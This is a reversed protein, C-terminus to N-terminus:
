DTETENLVLLQKEIKEMINYINSYTRRRDFKEEACRRARKGLRECLVKDKTLMIIKEALDKSDNNICNFGMDYKEILKRYERSEQTNLVPCGCAAYDAHKNIISAASRGEIPNVVMDCKDLMACMQPYPLRGTFLCKVNKTKVYDEFEKKRPGDGMVIFKPPETGKNRVIDLADIVSILDYSSGLTGCYGLWMESKQKTWEVSSEKNQDFVELDTGLFVSYGSKCKKSVCLARNVYTQSVACIDDARRYINDAIHKFPAFVLSSIVPVHFVMEFAEPWLDQIDIIFRIGNQNCFKAANGAATLSPVACYVVDPKKRQKLYSLVNRGWISHSYFRKLCVNKRYGPEKLFTIKFPWKKVARNRHKKTVHYFNSTIIEVDYKDALNRAIYLFRDNDSESFDNCFNSIIVIDM